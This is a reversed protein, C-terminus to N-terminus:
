LVMAKFIRSLDLKHFFQFVFRGLEVEKITVGKRPRWVGAMREKMIHTRIPRDTLFRGVLCLEVDLSPEVDNEVNYVLGEEEEEILSLDEMNPQLGAAEM